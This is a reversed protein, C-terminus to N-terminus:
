GERAVCNQLRDLAMLVDSIAQAHQGTGNWIKLVMGQLESAGVLASSGEAATLNRAYKCLSEVNRSSRKAKGALIRSIQSQHVGTHEQIEVQTLKGANVLGDLLSILQAVDNGIPAGM